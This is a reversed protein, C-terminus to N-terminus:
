RSECFDWFRRWGEDVRIKWDDFTMCKRGKRRPRAPRVVAAGVVVHLVLSIMLSGPNSDPTVGGVEPPLLQVTTPKIPEEVYERVLGPLVLFPPLYAKM